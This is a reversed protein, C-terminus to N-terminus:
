VLFFYTNFKDLNKGKHISRHLSQQALFLFRVWTIRKHLYASCFSIGYIYKQLITFYFLPLNLM